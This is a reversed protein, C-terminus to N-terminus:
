MTCGDDFVLSVRSTCDSRTPKSQLAQLMGIIYVSPTPGVVQLHIQRAPPGQGPSLVGVLAKAHVDAEAVDALGVLLPLIKHGLSELRLELM